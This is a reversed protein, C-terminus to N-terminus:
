YYLIHHTVCNFAKSLDFCTANVHEENELASFVFESLDNVALTTSLNNRFGYQSKSFLNNNDFFKTIQKKLLYEFVKSFTPVISIPRYNNMNDKDGKKFLPIVKSIKLVNPFVNEAICKNFFKTLPIYIVNVLTKIIKSNIHYVDKANSSSLALIADRADNYSIEKFNFDDQPRANNSLYNQFNTEPQQV